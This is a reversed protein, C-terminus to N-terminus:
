FYVVEDMGRFLGAVGTRALEL